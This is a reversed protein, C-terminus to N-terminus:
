QKETIIKVPRTDYSKFSTEFRVVNKMSNTVSSPWYYTQNVRLSKHPLNITLVSKWILASSHHRDFLEDFYFINSQNPYCIISLTTLSFLHFIM